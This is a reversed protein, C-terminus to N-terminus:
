LHVVLIFTYLFDNIFDLISNEKSQEGGKERGGRGRHPGTTTSKQTALSSTNGFSQTYQVPMPGFLQYMPILKDGPPMLLKHGKALCEVRVTGRELWSHLHIITAILIFQQCFHCPPQVPFLPPPPPSFCKPEWIWTYM